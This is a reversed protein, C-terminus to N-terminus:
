LVKKMARGIWDQISIVSGINVAIACVPFHINLSYRFNLQGSNIRKDVTGLESGPFTNLAWIYVQQGLREM